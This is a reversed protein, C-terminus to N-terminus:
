YDSRENSLKRWLLVCALSQCLGRADRKTVVAQAARREM